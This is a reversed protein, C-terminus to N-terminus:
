MFVWLPCLLPNKHFYKKIVNYNSIILMESRSSRRTKPFADIMEVASAVMTDLELVNSPYIAVNRRTLESCKLIESAMTKIKNQSWGMEAECEKLRSGDIFLIISTATNMLFPKVMQKETIDNRKEQKENERKQEEKFEKLELKMDELQQYVITWKNDELPERIESDLLIRERNNINTIPIAYEIRENIGHENVRSLLSGHIDIITM